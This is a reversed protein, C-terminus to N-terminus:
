KRLISLHKRLIANSKNLLQTQKSMKTNEALLIANSKNLLQTQKSMKTNEALLILKSKSLGWNAKENPHKGCAFRGKVSEFHKFAKEHHNKPSVCLDRM